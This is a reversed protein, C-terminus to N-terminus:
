KNKSNWVVLFVVLALFFLATAAYWVFNTEPEPFFFLALVGLIVVPIILQYTKM